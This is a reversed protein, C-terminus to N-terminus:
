VFTPRPYITPKSSVAAAFVPDTVPIVAAGQGAHDRAVGITIAAEARRV